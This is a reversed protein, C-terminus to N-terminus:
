VLSAVEVRNRGGRKAAYLARDAHRLLEAASCPYGPPIAYIGISVTLEVPQAAECRVTQSGVDVRISEALERAAEVSTDPLVIAFEEGGYRALTGGTGRVRRDLIQAVARLCDDGALHGHRDNVQKFHDVDVMLLALPQVKDRAQQCLQVINDDLHRRNYVGTLGDRRSFDQLRRNADELRHMTADLEATRARVRAELHERAEGQIRENEAKLVNIRYALAFSLLIMEAASGIQMSYETLPIKPLLGLSVAAYVVVGVLLASWAVLFHRAPAYVRLCLVGCVLILPAVLLALITQYQIVARYPLLFAAFAPLAAALMFGLLLRDARPANRHLELFSRTFQMMCLNSVAIGLPVALNAWDPFDPWLYQFAFGNLCLLLVGLSLAYLVYWLFNRDRVSVWLILNYLLLALQIGYYIGLGLHTPLLSDLYAAPRALVLPVQMSSQSVVRLYFETPQGPLLELEFNLNRLDRDRTSFPTRDGSQREGIRGDRDIRFLTVHDLLAYEIMLLWRDRGPGLNEARFHFWLAGDVYGFNPRDLPVPRFRGAALEARAEDLDFAAAPDHLYATHPALRHIDVDPGLRLLEPVQALGMRPALLLLGALAACWQLVAFVRKM